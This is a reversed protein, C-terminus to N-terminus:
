AYTVQPSAIDHTQQQTTELEEVSTQHSYIVGAMM